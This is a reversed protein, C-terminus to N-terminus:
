SGDFENCNDKCRLGQGKLSGYSSMVIVREVYVRNRDVAM